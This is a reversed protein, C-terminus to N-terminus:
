TRSVLPSTLCIDAESNWDAGLAALFYVGEVGTPRGSLVAGHEWGVGRQGLAGFMEAVAEGGEFGLDALDDDALGIHDPAGEGGQEDAPVDQEFADGPQALRQEDAGEGLGEVEREVPDLEGRVQ